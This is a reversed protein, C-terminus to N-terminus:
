CFGNRGAMKECTISRSLSSSSVVVVIGKTGGGIEMGGMPFKFTRGDPNPWHGLFGFPVM